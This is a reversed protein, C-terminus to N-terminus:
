RVCSTWNRASELALQRKTIALAEALDAQWQATAAVGIQAPAFNLEIRGNHVASKGTSAEVHEATLKGQALVLTAGLDRVSLAPQTLAMAVGAVVGRVEIASQWQEIQDLQLTAELGSLQGATIM